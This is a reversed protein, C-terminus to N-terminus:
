ISTAPRWWREADRIAAILARATYGLCEARQVLECRVRWANASVLSRERPSFPMIAGDIIPGTCVVRDYAECREHYEVALSTLGNNTEWTQSYLVHTVGWDDRAMTCIAAREGDGPDYGIWSNEGFTSITACREM